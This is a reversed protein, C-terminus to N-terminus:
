PLVGNYPDAPRAKAVKADLALLLAAAPAAAATKGATELFRRRSEDINKKTEKDM